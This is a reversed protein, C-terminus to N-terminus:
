TSKGLICRTRGPLVFALLLGFLLPWPGWKVWPTEGSASQFTGKLVTAQFQPALANVKGKPNIIATIGSTTSRLVYRGTELARMQAIELHQHPGWSNGFWGDESLTIIASANRLTNRIQEPFAIEYCILPNLSLKGATLLAQNKSGGIFSSMPLDFFNVLGRLWNEFPLFDGFPVLHHKHYIGEDKGIVILSNHYENKPNTYQVGTILTSNHKKALDKLHQIYFDAYPLPLPIASEPWLILDAGWQDRTLVGYTKETALIPESQSFKDYPKINGQILSVTYLHPDLKTYNQLSLYHGLGWVVIIVASVRLKLASKGKFFLFFAGSILLVAYSVGFVSAIPAYGALPTQLQSYGLYLWPFGTFLWSRIWEFILWCSPFGLLAFAIANGKFFRKLIYGQTAIFLALFMVFLFTILLAIPLETNGYQHISVLVWSIGTGFMGLGYALGLRFAKTPSLCKDQWLMLLLGPSLIALPWLHHPAFAGPLLTGALLAILYPAYSKHLLSKIEM